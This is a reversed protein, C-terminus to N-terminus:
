QVIIVTRMDDSNYHYACGIIYFGPVNAVYNKSSTGPDINGTTFGAASIDTNKPSPTAAPNPGTSPYSGAWPGLSAATHPQIDLNTFQIISASHTVSIVQSTTVVGGGFYAKVTSYVTDDCADQNPNTLNIGIIETGAQAIATVCDTTGGGGGNNTLAASYASGGACGAIASSCALVIAAAFALRGTPSAFNVTRTRESILAFSLAPHQSLANRRM